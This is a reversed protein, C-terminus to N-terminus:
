GQGDDDLGELRVYAQADEIAQRLAPLDTNRIRVGKRTPVSVGDKKYYTRIDLSASKADLLLSIQTESKGTGPLKALVLQHREELPTM